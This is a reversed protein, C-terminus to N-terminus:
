SRKKRILPLVFYLWIATLTLITTIATIIWSPANIYLFHGLYHRLFSGQYAVSIEAKRELWQELTTLPCINGTLMLLATSSLTGIHFFKLKPFKLVVFFGFLNFLVWSFHVLMVGDAIISYLCNM